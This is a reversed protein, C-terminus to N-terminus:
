QEGEGLLPAPEQSISRYDRSCRPGTDRWGSVLPLTVGAVFLGKGAERKLQEVAYNAPIPHQAAPLQSGPM